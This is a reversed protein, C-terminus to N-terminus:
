SQIFKGWNADAKKHLNVEDKNWKPLTNNIFSHYFLYLKGDKVKFTEPDIEVKEGTAGMAYACWGGYQPEYRDPNEQFAKLNAPTAFRYTVNKYTYSNAASGKVAKNQTFYAVADYGQIALGNELNFQQKRAAVSNTQASAPTWYTFFLTIFLLSLTKM